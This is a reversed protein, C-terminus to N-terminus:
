LIRHGLLIVSHPELCITGCHVDGTYTVLTRRWHVNGVLSVACSADFYGSSFIFTNESHRPFVIAHVLGMERFRVCILIKFCFGIYRNM